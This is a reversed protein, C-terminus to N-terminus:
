TSSTKKPKINEKNPIIAIMKVLDFREQESLKEIIPAFQQINPSFHSIDYNINTTQM